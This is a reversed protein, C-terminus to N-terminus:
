RMTATDSAAGSRRMGVHGEKATVALDMLVSRRVTEEVVQMLFDDEM